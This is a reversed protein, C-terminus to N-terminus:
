ERRFGVGAGAPQAAGPLLAPLPSRPPETRRFSISRTAAAMGAGALEALKRQVLGKCLLMMALLNYYLDFKSLNQFAGAVLYAVIAVQLMTALHREKALEPRDKTQRLIWSGTRFGAIALMLFVALGVFGQTGLAEFYISHVNRVTIGPNYRDYLSRDEFVGFGGGTLPRDLALNTAFVWMEIRGQASGDEQYNQITDMREFWKQPILPVTAMLVAAALVGVVLRHRSRWWWFLGVAVMAVLAGRSYSGVVSALSLTIGAIMAWRVWKNPSITVLYRMLPLIMLTALALANNDHIFTGAPGWVRHHGATALVFQGGKIAFFGISLATVWVLADLRKESQMLAMTLFTMVVIKFFQQWHFFAQDPVLAFATSVGTWLLYVLLLVSIGDWPIKREEKSCLFAVITTAGIVLALPFDYMFGWTMRHPNMYSIWSWMLIGVHPRILIFPISGFVVTFLLFDRM